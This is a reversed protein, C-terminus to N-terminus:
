LAMFWCFGRPLHKFLTHSVATNVSDIDSIKKGDIIRITDFNKQFWILEQEDRSIATRTVHTSCTVFRFDFTKQWITCTMIKRKHYLDFKHVQIFTLCNVFRSDQRTEFTTDSLRCIIITALFSKREKIQVFLENSYSLLVNFRLPKGSYSFFPPIRSRFLKDLVRFMCHSWADFAMMRAILWAGSFFIGM